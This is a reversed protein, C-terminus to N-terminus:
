FYTAGEPPQSLRSNKGSAMEKRLDMLVKAISYSNHWDNLTKFKSKDVTGDSNVCNMNIKTIFRVQPPDQPYNDGCVLQVTYIRGDHVGGPGIITGTWTTLTMDEPDNLGYSVNGDGIGKEGSELEELLRFSRPVVVSSKKSMKNKKIILLRHCTFFNGIM